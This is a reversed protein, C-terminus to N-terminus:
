DLLVASRILLPFFVLSEERVTFMYLFTWTLVSFLWGDVLCSSLGWWSSFKAAGQDQVELKWFQSFIIDTTLGDVRYYKTIVAWASVVM